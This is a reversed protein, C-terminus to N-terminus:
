VPPVDVTEVDIAVNESKIFFATTRSTVADGPRDPIYLADTSSIDITGGAPLLISGFLTIPLDITDGDSLYNHCVDVVSSVALHGSAFKQDNIVNVVSERMSDTDIDPNGDRKRVVITLSVFCPIPARVLYDACPDATGRESLFDQILGISPLGSVYAVYDVTDNIVLGTVDLDPDKFQVVAAQFRSFGGEVLNDIDPIFGDGTLDLSRIENVIELSGSVSDSGRPLIRDITYFGPFDDRTFSMQLIKDALDIIAAPKTFTLQQTKDLTRPYVDAKGGTSAGFAIHRDRLMESDGFGIISIDEFSFGQNGLLAITHTRGGVTRMSMGYQLEDLLEQNTEVNTGGVFDEYAYSYVYNAPTPSMSMPSNVDVRYESGVDDATVDIIFSYNGDQRQTILRYTNDLVNESDTVGTYSDDVTFTKGEFTFVTGAPVSTTVFTSIVVVVSGAATSGEGRTLRYNSLVGDVIDNDALTPDEEIAKLSMSRRLRDMYDRNLVSFLAAPRIVMQYIVSNDLDFEPDEALLLQKLEDEQQQVDDPDLDSLSLLDNSM